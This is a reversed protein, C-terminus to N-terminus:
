DLVRELFWSDGLQCLEFTGESSGRATVRVFFRMSSDDWWNGPERWWGLIEVVRYLRKRWIFATPLADRGTHTRVPEGILKAM